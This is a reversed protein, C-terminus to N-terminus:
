LHQKSCHLVVLCEVWKGVTQCQRSRVSGAVSSERRWSLTVAAAM